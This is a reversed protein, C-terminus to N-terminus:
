FDKKHGRETVMLTVVTKVELVMIKKAMKKLKIHISDYLTSYSKKHSDKNFVINTITEMYNCM